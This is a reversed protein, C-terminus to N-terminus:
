GGVLHITMEYTTLVAVENAGMPQNLTISDPEPLRETFQVNIMGPVQMAATYLSLEPYLASAFPLVRDGDIIVGGIPLTAYVKRIAAELAAAAGNQHSTAVYATGVITHELVSAQDCQLVAGLPRRVNGDTVGNILDLVKGVSVSLDEGMAGTIWIKVIPPASSDVRARTIAEDASLAWYEYAAEPSAYSRTAWKSSNRLRLKSDAEQDAGPRTIWTGPNNVSVGALTSVLTTITNSAVNGAFGAVEAECEVTTSDGGAVSFADINRYRLNGAAVVIDQPGPEHLLVGTNNFVVNGRTKVAGLQDNDYHSKAFTKLFDGEATDNFGANTVAAALSRLDTMVAAPIEIGLTRPWSGEQWSAAGNFGLSTMLAIMSTRAEELTIPTTLQAYTFLPM